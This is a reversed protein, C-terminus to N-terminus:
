VLELLLANCEIPSSNCVPATSCLVKVNYTDELNKLDGYYKTYRQNPIDKPDAYFLVVFKRLNNRHERDRLTQICKHFQCENNPSPYSKKIGKPAGTYKDYSPNHIYFKFEVFGIDNSSHLVLDIKECEIFQIVTADLTALERSFLFRFVSENWREIPMYKSELEFRQSAQELVKILLKDM